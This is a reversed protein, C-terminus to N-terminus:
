DERAEEGLAVDFRTGERLLEVFREAPVPRAFFFGQALDCRHRRARRAQEATEVGKAVVTHGLMSAMTTIASVLATDYTDVGLNAIFSRHIKLTDVPFLRLSGLSAQGTGFDDIALRVGTAVLEDLIPLLTKLDAVQATETLELTLSGPHCGIAELVRTLNSGSTTSALRRASVNVSLAVPRDPVAETWRELQRCATELVWAGIPDILGTDSALAVFESPGVLGRGPRQWRLLAEAGVIAGTTLSVVPQYHLLLEDRELALGLAQQLDHRERVRRRLTADFLELRARGKEKARYM